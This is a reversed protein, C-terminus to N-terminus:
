RSIRFGVPEKKRVLPQGDANLLGTLEPSEPEFVILAPLLPSDEDWGGNTKRKDKVKM